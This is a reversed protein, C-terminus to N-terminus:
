SYKKTKNKRVWKINIKHFYNIQYIINRIHLDSNHKRKAKMIQKEEEKLGQKNIQKHIHKNHISYNYSTNSSAPINGKGIGTISLSGWSTMIKGYKRQEQM